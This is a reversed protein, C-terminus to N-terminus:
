PSDMCFQVKEGGGCDKKDFKKEEPEGKGPKEWPCVRIPAPRRPKQYQKIDCVQTKQRSFM